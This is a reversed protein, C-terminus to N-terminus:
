FPDTKAKPLKSSLVEIVPEIPVIVPLRKVDEEINRPLENVDFTFPLEILLNDDFSTRLCIPSDTSSSTCTHTEHKLAKIFLLNPNFM